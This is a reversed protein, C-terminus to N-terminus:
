ISFSFETNTWIGDPGLLFSTIPCSPVHYIFRQHHLTLCSFVSLNDTQCYNCSSPHTFTSFSTPIPLVLIALGSVPSFSKRTVPRVYPLLNISPNTKSQDLNTVLSPPDTKGNNIGHHLAKLNLYTSGTIKKKKRYTFGIVM